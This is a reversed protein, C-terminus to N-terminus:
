KSKLAAKLCAEIEDIYKTEYVYLIQINDPHSSNHSLIREKFKKSKGIWKTWKM